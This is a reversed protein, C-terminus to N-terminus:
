ATVAANKRLASSSIDWRGPLHVFLEKFKNSVPLDNCSLVKNGDFRSLVYIKVGLTALRDLMHVLGDNTGGYWQPDLIRFATDYGCVFNKLGPYSNAKDVFLRGENNLILPWRSTFQALRQELKEHTLELKDANKATIEFIAKKGTFLEAMKAVADHGYHMPDFSGPFVIYDSFDDLLPQVKGDITVYMPKNLDDALLKPSLKKPAFIFGPVTDTKVFQDCTVFPNAEFPVQSLGAAFLVMNLATLDCIAGFVERNIEHQDMRLECTFIGDSTRVAAFCRTGGKLERDTTAAATLGLGIIPSDYGYETCTQQARFYSEQALAIAAESCCNGHGTSQKWNKGIYRDFDGAHYPFNYSFLTNSAGAIKWIDYVIGAAAGTCALHVRTGSAFLGKVANAILTENTFM